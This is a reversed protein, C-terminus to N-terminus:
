IPLLYRSPVNCSSPFSRQTPANARSQCVWGGWDGLSALCGGAEEARESTGPASGLRIFHSMPVAALSEPRSICM